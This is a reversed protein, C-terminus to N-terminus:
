YAYIAKEPTIGKSELMARVEPAPKFTGFDDTDVANSWELSVAGPIRGGYKNSRINEGTYEAESRVDWIVPGSKGVVSQLEEGTALLSLDPRPVFTAPTLNPIEETVPRGEYLWKRWGGNLVKVNTHGYYNLVWWLRAAQLSNRSDYAIVLTNSAIGLNGMFAALSEPQMVHVGDAGKIYSNEGINVSGPIHVRRYADPSDCDVIRLGSDGLHDELWETEVLLEPHEYNQQM